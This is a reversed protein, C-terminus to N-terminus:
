AKILSCHQKKNYIQFIQFTKFTLIQTQKLFMVHLIEINFFFCCCCAM